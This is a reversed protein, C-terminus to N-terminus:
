LPGALKGEKRGKVGSRGALRVAPRCYRQAQCRQMKSKDGGSEKGGGESGGRGGERGEEM